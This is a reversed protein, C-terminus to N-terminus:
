GNKEWIEAKSCLAIFAERIKEYPLGKWLPSSRVILLLDTYPRIQWKEKRFIERLIRKVRNRVVANSFGKELRIAFRCTSALEKQRSHITPEVKEKNREVWFLILFDGAVRQGSNLIKQIERDLHIRENKCFRFRKKADSLPSTEFPATM